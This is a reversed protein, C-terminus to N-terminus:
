LRLWEAAAQRGPLFGFPSVSCPDVGAVIGGDGFGASVTYADELLDYPGPWVYALAFTHSLLSVGLLVTKTAHM